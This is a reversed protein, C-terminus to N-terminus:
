WGTKGEQQKGEYTLKTYSLTSHQRLMAYYYYHCCLTLNLKNSRSQLTAEIILAELLGKSRVRVEELLLPHLIHVIYRTILLYSIKKFM